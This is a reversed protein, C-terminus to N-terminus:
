RENGRDTRQLQGSRLIQEASEYGTQMTYEKELRVISHPELRHKEMTLM